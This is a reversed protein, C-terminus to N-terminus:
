SARLPAALALPTGGCHSRFSLVHHRADDGDVVEVEDDEAARAIERAPLDQRAEVPAEPGALHGLGGPDDAGRARVEARRVVPSLMSVARQLFKERRASRSSFAM